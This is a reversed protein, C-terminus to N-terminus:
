VFEAMRRGHAIRENKMKTNLVYYHHVLVFKVNLLNVVICAIHTTFNKLLVTITIIMSWRYIIM